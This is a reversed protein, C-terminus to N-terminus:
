TDKANQEVTIVFHNWKDYAPRSSYDHTVKLNHVHKFVQGKTGGSNYIEGSIAECEVETDYHIGAAGNWAFYANYYIGENASSNVNENLIIVNVDRDHMWWPIFCYEHGDYDYPDYNSDKSIVPSGVPNGSEDYEQQEYEQGYYVYDIDIGHKGEVDPTYQQKYVYQSGSYETLTSVNRVNYDFYNDNLSETFTDKEGFLAKNVEDPFDRTTPINEVAHSVTTNGIYWNYYTYTNSSEYLPSHNIDIIGTRARRLVRRIRSSPLSYSRLHITSHSNIISEWSYDSRDIGNSDIKVWNDNSKLRYLDNTGVPNMLVGCYIDEWWDSHYVYFDIDLIIYPRLYLNFVSINSDHVDLTAVTYSNKQVYSNLYATIQRTILRDNTSGNQFAWYYATDSNYNTHVSNFKYFVRRNGAINANTSVTKLVNNQTLHIYSLSEADTAPSLPDNYAVIYRYKYKNDDWIYQEPISNRPRDAKGTDIQIDTSVNYFINVAPAAWSSGTHHKLNGYETSRGYETCTYARRPQFVRYWIKQHGNGYVNSGSGQYMYSSLDNIVDSLRHQIEYNYTTTPKNQITVSTVQGRINRFYSELYIQHKEGTEWDYTIWSTNASPNTRNYNAITKTTYSPFYVVVYSSAVESNPFFNVTSNEYTYAGIWYGSGESNYILDSTGNNDVFYAYKIEGVSVNISYLLNKPNTSYDSNVIYIKSFRKYNKAVTAM